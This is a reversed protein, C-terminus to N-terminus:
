EDIHPRYKRQLESKISEIRTDYGCISEFRATKEFQPTDTSISKEQDLSDVKRWSCDLAAASQEMDSSISPLIIPSSTYEAKELISEPVEVRQSPHKVRRKDKM